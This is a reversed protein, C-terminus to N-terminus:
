GVNRESALHRLQGTGVAPVTIVPDRRKQHGIAPPHIVLPNFPQLTAFPQLDRPLLRLSLTQAKRIARADAKPRGM